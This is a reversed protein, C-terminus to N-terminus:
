VVLEIGFNKLLVEAEPMSFKAHAIKNIDTNIFYSKAKVFNAKRMDCQEFRCGKLNSKSFDAGKLDVDIFSADALDCNTFKKGSMDIEFFLTYLLKCDTFDMSRTIGTVGTFDVGQLICDKFITDIMSVEALKVLRLNSKKFTCDVFKCHELVAESFNCLIFTCAEFESKSITQQSVNVKSLAKETYAKGSEIKKM